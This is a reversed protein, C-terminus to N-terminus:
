RSLKREAIVINSLAPPKILASNHTVTWYTSRWCSRIINGMLHWRWDANFIDQNIHITRCEASVASCQLGGCSNVSKQSSQETQQSAPKYERRSQDGWRLRQDTCNKSSSLVGSNTSFIKIFDIKIISLEDKSFLSLTFLTQVNVIWQKCRSFKIGCYIKIGKLVDRCVWCPIIHLYRRFMNTCSPVATLADWQTFKYCLVEM